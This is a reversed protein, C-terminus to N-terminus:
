FEPETETQILGGKERDSLWLWQELTYVDKIPRPLADYQPDGSPATGDELLQPVHDFTM